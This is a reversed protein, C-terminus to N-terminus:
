VELIVLPGDQEAMFVERLGQEAAQSVLALRNADVSRGQSLGLASRLIEDLCPCVTAPRRTGPLSRRM